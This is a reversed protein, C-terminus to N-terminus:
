IPVDYCTSSIDVKRLWVLAFVDAGSNAANYIVRAPGPTGMQQLAVRGFIPNEPQLGAASSRGM